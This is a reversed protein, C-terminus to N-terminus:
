PKVRTMKPKNSYDAVAASWLKAIERGVNTLEQCTAKISCILNYDWTASLMSSTSCKATLFRGSGM